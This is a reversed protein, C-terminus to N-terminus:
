SPSVGSKRNVSCPPTLVLQITGPPLLGTCSTPTAWSSPGPGDADHLFAYVFWLKCTFSKMWFSSQTLLGYILAAAHSVQSCRPEFRCSCFLSLKRPHSSPMTPRCPVGRSRLLHLTFSQPYLMVIDAVQMSVVWPFSVFRARGHTAATPGRRSPRPDGREEGDNKWSLFTRSSSFLGAAGCQSSDWAAHGGPSHAPTWGPTLLFPPEAAWVATALGRSGRRADIARAGCGGAQRGGRVETQPDAHNVLLQSCGLRLVSDEPRVSQNLSVWTVQALATVESRACIFISCGGSSCAFLELVHPFGSRPRALDDSAACPPYPRPGERGPPLVPARRM